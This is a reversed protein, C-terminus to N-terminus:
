EFYKGESFICKEWREPLKYISRWFFEEDKSASMLGNESTKTLISTGSLSRTTWRRFCTITLLHLTQHTLPIPYCKGTSHRWTKVNNVYAINRQRPSFDAQWTKESLAVKKRLRHLKILQQHYRHVNVIECTKIARLLHYGGSRVLRLSDALDAWNRDIIQRANHRCAINISYLGLASAISPLSSDNEVRVQQFFASM